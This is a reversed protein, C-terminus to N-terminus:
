TREGVVAVVCPRIERSAAAPAAPILGATLTAPPLPTLIRIFRPIYRKPIM